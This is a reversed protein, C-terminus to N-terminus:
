FRSVLTTGGASWASRVVITIAGKREMRTFKLEM